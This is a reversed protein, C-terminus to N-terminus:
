DFHHPLMPLDRAPQLVIWHAPYARQHHLGTRYLRMPVLSIYITAPVVYGDTLILPASSGNLSLSMNNRPPSLLLAAKFPADTIYSHFPTTDRDLPDQGKCRTSM